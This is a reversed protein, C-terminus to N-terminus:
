YLRYVDHGYRDVNDFDYKQTLKLDFIRNQDHHSRNVHFIHFYVLEADNLVFRFVTQRYSEGNM